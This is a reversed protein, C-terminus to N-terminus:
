PAAGSEPNKPAQKALAADRQAKLHQLGKLTRQSCSFLGNWDLSTWQEPGAFFLNRHYIANLKALQEAGYVAFRAAGLESYNETYEAPRAKVQPESLPIRLKLEQVIQEGLNELYPKDFRAWSPMRVWIDVEGVIPTRRLILFNQHAWPLHSDRLLVCSLPLVETAPTAKMSIRFRLWSWAPSIYGNPFIKEKVQASFRQSEESTVMWVFSKAREVGSREAVVELAELDKGNFRADAISAKRVLRVGSKQCLMLSQALGSGSAGRMRLSTFVPAPEGSQLAQFNEHYVNAAYQHAFAALWNKEFGLERVQKMESTRRSFSGEHRLYERVFTPVGRQDLYFDTLESKLELPGDGLWLVLGQAVLHAEEDAGFRARQSEGIENTEFLGFPGEFDEPQWKGLEDSTDILTVSWGQSALEQALWQGRGYASVIAVDATQDASQQATLKASM